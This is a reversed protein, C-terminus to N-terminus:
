SEIRKLVIEENPVFEKELITGDMEVDNLLYIEGLGHALKLKGGFKSKITIEETQHKQVKAGILFGGEVAIGNFDFEWWDRHIKPLVYVTEGKQYVLLDLVASLAGFGADLQMVERNREIEPINHWGPSSINSIGGFAANHLTGRGENTFNRYWYMLWSVAAEPENNRNELISAWPV